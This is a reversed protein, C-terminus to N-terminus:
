VYYKTRIVGNGRLLVTVVAPEGAVSRPPMYCDSGVISGFVVYARRKCVMNTTENTFLDYKKSRM